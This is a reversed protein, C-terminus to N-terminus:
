AYANIGARGALRSKSESGVIEKALNQQLGEEIQNMGDKWFEINCAGKNGQNWPYLLPFCLCDFFQTILLPWRSRFHGLCSKCGANLASKEVM